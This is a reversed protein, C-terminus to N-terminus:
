PSILRDDYWGRAAALRTRITADLCPVPEGCGWVPGPWCTDSRLRAVHHVHLQAVLNGLAGINIKDAAFSQMMGASLLASERWLQQQDSEALQYIESIGARQPVLIFWPFREDNMLLLRSVPLQGVDICDAALRDHLRFEMM